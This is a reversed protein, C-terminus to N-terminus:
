GYFGLEFINISAAANKKLTMGKAYGLAKFVDCVKYNAIRYFVKKGARRSKLVRAKKLKVLQISVTSQKKKVKPYIECVCKEGGLLLEIIRLRTADALLKLITLAKHEKM